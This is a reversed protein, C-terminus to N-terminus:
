PTVKKAPDTISWFINKYDSKIKHWGARRARDADSRDGYHDAHPLPDPVKGALFDDCLWLMEMWRSRVVSWRQSVDNWHDPKKLDRNMHFIWRRTHRTHNKVAASYKRVVKYMSFNSAKTRKLYINLIAACEGSHVSNFGAEGVCSRALWLGVDPRKRKSAEVSCTHVLFITTFFLFVLFVKVEDRM